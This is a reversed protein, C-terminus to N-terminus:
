FDQEHAFHFTTKFWISASRVPWCDSCSWIILSKTKHIKQESNETKVKWRIHKLRLCEINSRSWILNNNLPIQFGFNFVTTETKLLLLTFRRSRIHRTENLGWLVVFNFYIKFQVLLKSEFFQFFAKDRISITLKPQPLNKEVSKRLHLNNWVM